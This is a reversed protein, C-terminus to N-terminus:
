KTFDGKFCVFCKEGKIRDGPSRAGERDEPSFPAPWNGLRHSRPKIQLGSTSAGSTARM